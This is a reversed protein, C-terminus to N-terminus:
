NGLWSRTSEGFEYNARRGPQVAAFSPEGHRWERRNAEDSFDGNRTPDSRM